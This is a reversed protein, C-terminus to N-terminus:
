TVPGCAHGDARAWHPLAMTVMVMVSSHTTADACWFEPGCGSPLSSTPVAADRGPSAIEKRASRSRIKTRVAQEFQAAVQSTRAAAAAALDGAQRRLRRVELATADLEPDGTHYDYDLVLEPMVEDPLDAALVVVERVAM